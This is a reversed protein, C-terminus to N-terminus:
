SNNEDDGPRGYRYKEYWQAKKKEQTLMAESIKAEIANKIENGGVFVQELLASPAPDVNNTPEPAPNEQPPPGEYWQYLSSGLYGPGPKESVIVDKARYYAEQKGAPRPIGVAKVKSKIVLKGKPTDGRHKFGWPDAKTPVPKAPYAELEEGKGKKAGSRPKWPALDEQYNAWEPYLSAFHTGCSQGLSLLAEIIKAKRIKRAPTKRAAEPYIVSDLSIDFETYKASVRLVGYGNGETCKRFGDCCKVAQLMRRYEEWDVADSMFYVHFGKKTQFITAPGLGFEKQLLLIDKRLLTKINKGDYDFMPMHLYHGLRKGGSSFVVSSVGICWDRWNNLPGNQYHVTLFFRALLDQVNLYRTEGVHQHGEVYRGPARNRKYFALMEFDLRIGAVEPSTPGAEKKPKLSPPAPELFVGGAASAAATGGLANYSITWNSTTSTYNSM